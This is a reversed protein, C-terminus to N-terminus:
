CTIYILDDDFYIMPFSPMLLIGYRYGQKRNGTLKCGRKPLAVVSM